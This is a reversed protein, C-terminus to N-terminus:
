DPQRPKFERGRSGSIPPSGEPPDERAHVSPVPCTFYHARASTDFDNPGFLAWSAQNRLNTPERASSCKHSVSQRSLEAPPDTFPACPPRTSWVSARGGRRVAAAFASSRRDGGGTLHRHQGRIALSRPASSHGPAACVSLGVGATRDRSPARSSAQGATPSRTRKTGGAAPNPITAM